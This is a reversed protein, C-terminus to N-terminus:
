YLHFNKNVINQLSAVEEKWVIAIATFHETHLKKM